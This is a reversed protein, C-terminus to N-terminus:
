ESDSDGETNWELSLKDLARLASDQAEDDLCGFCLGDSGPHRALQEMKQLPSLILQASPQLSAANKTVSSSSAAYTSSKKIDTPKLTTNKPFLTNFAALTDACSSSASSPGTIGETAKLPSHATSIASMVPQTPPRLLQTVKQELEALAIRQKERLLEAQTPETRSVTSPPTFLPLKASSHLRNEANRLQVTIQAMKEQLAGIDSSTQLSYRLIF